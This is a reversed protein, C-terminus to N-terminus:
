RLPVIFNTRDYKNIIIYKLPEQLIKDQVTRIWICHIRHKILQSVWLPLLGLVQVFSHNTHSAWQM